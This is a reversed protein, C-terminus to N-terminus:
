VPDIAPKAKEGRARKLGNLEDLVGRPIVIENDGLVGAFAPVESGRYTTVDQVLSMIASTDLVFIRKDQAM